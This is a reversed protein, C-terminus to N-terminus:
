QYVVYFIKNQVFISFIIATPHAMFWAQVEAPNELDAVIIPVVSLGDRVL